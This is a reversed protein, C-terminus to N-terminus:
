QGARVRRSQSGSPTVRATVAATGESRVTRRTRHPTSDHCTVLGPNVTLVVSCSNPSPPPRPQRRMGANVTPSVATRVPGVTSPDARGRRHGPVTPGDRIPSHTLWHRPRIAAAAADPLEGLRTM